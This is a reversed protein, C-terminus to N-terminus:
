LRSPKHNNGNVVFMLDVHVLIKYNDKNLDALIQYLQQQSQLEQKNKYPTIHFIDVLQDGYTL